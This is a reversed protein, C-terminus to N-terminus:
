KDLVTTYIVMATVYKGNMIVKVDKVDSDSIGQEKMWANMDKELAASNKAEFMKIQVDKAFLPCVALLALIFIKNM